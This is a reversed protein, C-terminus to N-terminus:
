IAWLANVNAVNLEMATQMLQESLPEGCRLQDNGDHLTDYIVWFANAVNMEIASANVM